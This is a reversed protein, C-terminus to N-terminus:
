VNVTVARLELSRREGAEEAEEDTVITVAGVAGVSTM